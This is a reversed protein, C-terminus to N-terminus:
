AKFSLPLYRPMRKEEQYVSEGTLIQWLVMGYGYVDVAANGARKIISIRASVLVPIHFIHAPM